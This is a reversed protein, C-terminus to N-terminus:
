NIDNKYADPPYMGVEKYFFIHVIVAATFLGIYIVFGVWKLIIEWLLKRLNRLVMMGVLLGSVFGALHASYSVKNDVGYYANYFFVTVDTIMLVLLVLLRVWNFPMESWNLIVNALHAAILAYVGGSAGVLYSQPDAISSALSGAIVGALYLLLLRWWKHVAELPLGVVLAMFCNSLLHVYGAHLFMYSVFRWAEIRRKPDYIIESDFPVPSYPGASGMKNAYYIYVCIQAIVFAPITLPPPCCSYAELYIRDAHAKQSRPTMSLGAQVLARRVASRVQADQPVNVLAYFEQLNIYGDDNYDVRALLNDVLGASLPVESIPKRLLYQRLESRLILGDGDADIRLFIDHWNIPESYPANSRM